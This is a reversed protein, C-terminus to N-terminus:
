KSEMATIRATLATIIAQQEQIARFAVAVLSGYDVSYKTDENGYVVEPIQTQLEQAIFGIYEGGVDVRNFSRPQAALVTDLGYKIQQINKKLRADSANTWTGGSTLTANNNGNDFNLADAASNLYILRFQGSTASYGTAIGTASGAGSGNWVSLKANANLTTTGNVVLDGGSTIRARETSNTAFVIPITNDNSVRTQSSITGFFSNYTGDNVLMMTDGSGALHLRQTPSATGIGLNGSANLTMAQTFSIANGATGSAATFFKFAGVELDLRTAGATNGYRYAGDYYVNQL